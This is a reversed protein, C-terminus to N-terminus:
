RTSILNSCYDCSSYKHSIDLSVQLASHPYGHRSLREAHDVFYHVIKGKLELLTAQCSIVLSETYINDSGPLDVGEAGNKYGNSSGNDNIEEVDHKIGRKDIDNDIESNVVKGEEHKFPVNFCVTIMDRLATLTQLAQSHLNCRKGGGLQEMQEPRADSGKDTEHGIPLVEVILDSVYLMDLDYIGNVRHQLLSTVHFIQLYRM